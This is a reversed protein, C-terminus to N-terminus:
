AGQIGCVSGNEPRKNQQRGEGRDYAACGAEGDKRAATERTRWGHVRGGNEAASQEGTM